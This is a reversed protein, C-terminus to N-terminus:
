SPLGAGMDDLRQELRRIAGRNEHYDFMGRAKRYDEVTPRGETNLYLAEIAQAIAADSHDRNVHIYKADGFLDRFVSRSYEYIDEQGNFSGAEFQDAIKEVAKTNPGETWRIDISDGGSYRDSKVSFKVKPFQEKLLVRINHAALTPGNLKGAPDYAKLQPWQQPLERRQRAKDDAAAQKAAKDAAEVALRAASLEALYPAGHRKFDTRYRNGLHDTFSVPNLRSQRGDELTVTITYKYWSCPQVDTIAGCGSPNARDGSYVIGLGVFDAPALGAAIMALMDFPQPAARTFEPELDAGVARPVEDALNPVPATQQHHDPAPPTYGTHEAPAYFYIREGSRLQSEADTVKEDFSSFAKYEANMTDCEFPANRKYTLLGIPEGSNWLERAQRKTVLAFLGKYARQKTSQRLTESIAQRDIRLAETLHGARLHERLNARARAALDERGAALAQLILGETHYNIDELDDLLQAVHEAGMAQVDAATANMADFANLRHERETQQDDQDDTDQAAQDAQRAMAQLAAMRERGTAFNCVGISGDPGEFEFSPRGDPDTFMVACWHGSNGAVRQGIRQGHADHTPKPPAQHPRSSARGHQPASPTSSASSADCTTALADPESTVTELEPADSFYALSHQKLKMLNSSRGPKYENSPLRAMLGEGGAELVARLAHLVDAMTYGQVCDVCPVGHARIVDLRLPWDKNKLGPADFAIFQVRDPNKGYQVFLRADEFRGRGAYIEGDLAFGAPLTATITPADIRNGTKTYLNSGDWYARCGDLKESLYYGCLERGDWDKGHQQLAAAQDQSLPAAQLAAATTASAILESVQRAAETSTTDETTDHETSQLTEPDPQIGLQAIWTARAAAQDHPCNISAAIAAAQIHAPKNNWLDRAVQEAKNRSTAKTNGNMALMSATHFVTYAGDWRRASVFGEPMGDVLMPAWTLGAHGNFEYFMAGLTDAMALAASYDGDQILEWVMSVSRAKWTTAKRAPAVKDVKGGGFLGPSRRVTAVMESIRERTNLIKITSREGTRIRIFRDADFARLEAAAAGRASQMAHQTAQMRARIDHDGPQIGYTHQETLGEVTFEQSEWHEQPVRDATESCLYVLARAQQDFNPASDAMDDRTPYATAAADQLARIVDAACITARNSPTTNRTM